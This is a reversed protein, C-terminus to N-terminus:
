DKKTDPLLRIADAYIEHGKEKKIYGWIVIETGKQLCRPPMTCRTVVRYQEEKGNPVHLAIHLSLYMFGKATKETRAKEVITARMVGRKLEPYPYVFMQDPALVSSNLCAEVHELGAKAEGMVSKLDCEGKNNECFDNLSRFEEVAEKLASDISGLVDSQASSPQRHFLKYRVLQSTNCGRIEAEHELQSAQEPTARFTIYKTHGNKKNNTKASM